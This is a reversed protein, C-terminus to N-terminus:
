ASACLAAAPADDAPSRGRLTYRFFFERATELDARTLFRDGLTAAGALGIEVLDRAAAAIRPDSLGAQAAPHLLAPDPSGLRDVAARLSKPEYLMGGLLAFPAAYWEPPLADPSRVELYGKPRVEPFLTSLHEWWEQQTVAGHALWEGFPAYEASRPVRKLMLPARLAFELYEGAADGACPLLGTRTRDLERWNRARFSKHGSPVGAYVPSNAFIAVLYPAAANLARWRLLGDTGFDLNVQLAATQRMMRAGASGRTALYDAMRTYREGSLQMPVRELPNHPDAGVSWLVIGEERAAIQLPFVVAGLSALLASASLFPPASFEIQGGPEFSIWGGDRTRFKPVGHDSPVEAWGRRAALRRLLPLTAPGETAQIPVPACSDATLPILEVEAGIQDPAHLGGAAGFVRTRLDAELAARNVADM